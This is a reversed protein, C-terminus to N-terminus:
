RGCRLCRVDLLVQGPIGLVACLELIHDIDWSELHATYKEVNEIEWDEFGVRDGLEEVSMGLAQRRKQVLESRSFWYDDHHPVGEGCFACPISLLDLLPLRLVECIKKVEYLAVLSQVEGPDDEIDGYASISLRAIHAVDIDSLKLEERRLKIKENVPVDRASGM